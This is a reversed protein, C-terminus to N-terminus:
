YMQAVVDKEAWRRLGAMEWVLVSCRVIPFHCSTGFDAPTGFDSLCLRRVMTDKTLLGQM